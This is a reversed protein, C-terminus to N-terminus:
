HTSSIRTAAPSHMKAVLARQRYLERAHAISASEVGQRAADSQLAEIQQRTPAPAAVCLGLVIAWGTAAGTVPWL